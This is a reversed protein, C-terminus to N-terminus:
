IEFIGSANFQVVINGSNPIVPLGSTADDNYAVLRSTAADGTDIFIVVIESTDGTVGSFLTDAADFVGDTYTKSTLNASTSIRGGSPIDSLFQHSASYTYEESDVLVAKVNGTLASNSAGQLLAERWKPYIVNAM